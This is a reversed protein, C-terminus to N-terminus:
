CDVFSHLIVEDKGDIEEVLVDVHEEKSTNVVKGVYDPHIPLERHGRDVLILLEVKKPRGFDLIAELAARVTRGTFIVDDVLIVEKENIDFPIETHSLKPHTQLRTWDDRYLNIDLKGIPIDRNWRLKLIKIIRNAINVGRRQIGIFVLNGLNMHKELVEFTLREIIREMEEKTLIKISRKKM